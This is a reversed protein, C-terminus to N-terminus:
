RPRSNIDRTSLLHSLLAIKITLIWISYGHSNLVQNQYNMIVSCTPVEGSAFPSSSLRSGGMSVGVLGDRLLANVGSGVFDGKIGGFGLFYIRKLSRCGLAGRLTHSQALGRLFGRCKLQRSSPFTVYASLKHEGPSSLKVSRRSLFSWQLLQLPCSQCCPQPSDPRYVRKRTVTEGIITKGVPSNPIGGAQIATPQVPQNSERSKAYEM